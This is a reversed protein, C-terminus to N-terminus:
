ESGFHVYDDSEVALKPKRVNPSYDIYTKAGLGLVRAFNHHTHLDRCAVHSQLGTTFSFPKDDAVCLFQLSAALLSCHQASYCLLVQSRGVCRVIKTINCVINCPPQLCSATGTMALCNVKQGGGTGTLCCLLSTYTRRLFPRPANVLRQGLEVAGVGFGSDVQCEYFCFCRAPIMGLSLSDIGMPACVYASLLMGVQPALEWNDLWLSTHVHQVLLLM